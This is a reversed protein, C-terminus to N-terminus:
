FYFDSFRLVGAMVGVRLSLSKESGIKKGTNVHPKVNFFSNPGVYINVELVSPVDVKFLSKM